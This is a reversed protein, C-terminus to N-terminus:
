SSVDGLALGGDVTFVSGTIYRAKDSCLYAILESVDDPNGLFGVPITKKLDSESLSYKELLRDTLPTQILGPAVANVTLGRSAVELALTRVFGEIGAKAASYNVLGRKAYKASISSLLVIRGFRNRYMPKLFLHILAMNAVLHEGITEEHVSFDEHMFLGDQIRGHSLVLTSPSSDFDRQINEALEKADSYKTMKRQYVRVKCDPFEQSLTEAALQARATDEAFSLALDHEPALKRACSFGIGSTGGTIVAFRRGM